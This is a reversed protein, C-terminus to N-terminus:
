SRPDLESEVGPRADALDPEDIEDAVVHLDVAFRGLLAVLARLDV